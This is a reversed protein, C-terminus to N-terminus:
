DDYNIFHYIGVGTKVRKARRNKATVSLEQASLWNDLEVLLNQGKTRILADFAPMLDERLGEEAIVVREFRGLGHGRKTNFEVTNIFDRVVDGLRQLADPHLSEPMYARMLVKFAGTALQEVAKVHLLEDLMARPAMDGSYKRVLAVFDSGNNSEFPLELPMGYPGTFAQDTHWGMLVRTVRNLNGELVLSASDISKQKAVEKRTLGTLIAIRSQSTKREPLNFDREAVEVFV